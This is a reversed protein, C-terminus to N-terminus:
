ITVITIQKDGAVTAVDNPDSTIVSVLRENASAITAGIHADAVSVRHEAVLSAAVNSASSNLAVDQIRLRNLLASRANTRDWGAEARVSTPVCVDFRAGRRNREAVVHVHAIVRRHKAHAPDSLAQVAENGLIVLRTSSADRPVSRELKPGSFFMM